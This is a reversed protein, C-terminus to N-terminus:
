GTKPAVGQAGWAQLKSVVFGFTVAGAELGKLSLFGLTLLPHRLLRRWNRIFAPRFVLNAQGLTRNGHKGIYRLSSGAYRYKKALVPGIRLRGEDHEIQSATRPLSRGRAIRISLDWDEMADLREDFGGSEQFSERPFFRAAEISDDGLYCSRELARCRALFGEGISLEPIIVGPSGTEHTAKVCDAVVHPDLTMDADVFLLYDGRSISAGRNRQASREPGCAEFIDAYRQAIEPTADSSHNDVVVLEVRAYTQSRVSRLCADLTRAANRTPVVVSVLGPHHM